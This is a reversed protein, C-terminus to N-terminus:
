SEEFVGSEFVGAEFVQGGSPPSVVLSATVYSSFTTGGSNTAMARLRMTGASEGTSDWVLGSLEGTKDVLDLDFTDLVPTANTAAGLTLTVSNGITVPDASFAPLLTFSPAPYTVLVPESTGTDSEMLPDTGTVVVDIESLDDADVLTYTNSTAGSINVEDRRWQYTFDLNEGSWDGTTASLTQDIKPTGSIVPPTLNIPVEAARYILPLGSQLLLPMGNPLLLIM